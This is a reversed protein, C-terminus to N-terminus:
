PVSSFIRSRKLSTHHDSPPVEDNKTRVGPNGGQTHDVPRHRRLFLLAYEYLSEDDIKDPGNFRIRILDDLTDPALSSRDNGRLRTLASFAREAAASSQGTVLIRAILQKINVPWNLTSDYLAINWFHTAPKSNRVGEYKPSVVIQGLVIKWQTVIVGCDAKSISYFDCIKSVKATSTEVNDTAHIPLFPEYCDDLTECTALRSEGPCTFKFWSPDFVDFAEIRRVVFLLKIEAIIRSYLIERWENLPVSKPDKKELTLVNSPQSTSEASEEDSEDTEDSEDSEMEGESDTSLVGSMAEQVVAHNFQVMPCEDYQQLTCQGQTCVNPCTMRSLYTKLQKGPSAKLQEFKKITDRLTKSLGLIIGHKTQLANLLVESVGLMDVFEALTAGFSKDSITLLLPKAKAANEGKGKSVRELDIRIADFDKLLASMAMRKSKSWRITHHYKIREPKLGIEEAVEQLHAWRKSGRSMFYTYFKNNLDGFKMFYKEPKENKRPTSTPVNLAHKIATETVHASCPVSQVNHGVYLILQAILGKHRGIMPSGRDSIFTILNTQFYYKFGPHNLNDEDVARRIDDMMDLGSETKTLRILRWFYLVPQGAELTQILCVLFGTNRNTTADVMFSFPQQQKLLHKLLRNHFGESFAKAYHRLSYYNAHATGLDVGLDTVTEHFIPHSRFSTEAQLEAWALKMARLTRRYRQKQDSHVKAEAAIADQQTRALRLATVYEIAEQHVSYSDADSPNVHDLIAAKNRTTKSSLYGSTMIQSPTKMDPRFGKGLFFSCMYCKFKCEGDELLVELWTTISPVNIEKIKTTPLHHKCQEFKAPDFRPLPVVYPAVVPDVDMGEPPLDHNIDHENEVAPCQKRLQDDLAKSYTHDNVRAYAAASVGPYDAHCAGEDSDMTDDVENELGIQDMIRELYFPRRYECRNQSGASPTSLRWCEQDYPRKDGCCRSLSLDKNYGTTPGDWDRLMVKFNPDVLTAPKLSEFFNCHNRPAKRAVVVMDVLNGRILEQVRENKAISLPAYAGNLDKELSLEHVVSELQSYLVMLAYPSDDFDPFSQDGTYISAVDESDLNIDVNAMEKTGIVLFNKTVRKFAAGIDISLVVELPDGRVIIFVFGDLDSKDPRRPFERTIVELEVFVGRNPGPNDLNVENLLLTFPPHYYNDDPQIAM